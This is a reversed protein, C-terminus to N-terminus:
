GEGRCIESAFGRNENVTWSFASLPPLHPLPPRSRGRQMNGARVSAVAHGERPSRASTSGLRGDEKPRALDVPEGPADEKQKSSLTLSPACVYYAIANSTCTSRDCGQHVLEEDQDGDEGEGCAARSGRSRGLRPRWPGRTGGGLRGRRRRPTLHHRVERRRAGNGGGAQRERRESRRLGPSGRCESDHFRRGGVERSIRGRPHGM